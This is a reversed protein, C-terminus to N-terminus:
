GRESCWEGDVMIKQWVFERSNEKAKVIYLSYCLYRKLTFWWLFILWSSFFSQSSSHDLSLAPSFRITLYVIHNCARVKLYLSMTTGNKSCWITWSKSVDVFGLYSNYTTNKIRPCNHCSFEHKDGWSKIRKKHEPILLVRLTHTPPPPTNATVFHMYKGGVYMYNMWSISSLHDNSILEVLKASRGNWSCRIISFCWIFWFRHM